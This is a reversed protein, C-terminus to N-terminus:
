SEAGTTERSPPRQPLADGVVPCLYRFMASKLEGIYAEREEGEHSLILDM